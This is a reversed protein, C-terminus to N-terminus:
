LRTRSVWWTKVVMSVSRLRRLIKSNHERLRLLPNSIRSSRRCFVQHEKSWNSLKIYFTALYWIRWRWSLIQFLQNKLDIRAGSVDSPGVRERRGHPSQFFTSGLLAVLDLRDPLTFSGQTLKVVFYNQMVFLETCKWVFSGSLFYTTRLIEEAFCVSFRGLKNM